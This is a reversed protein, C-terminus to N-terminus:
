SAKLGRRTSSQMLAYLYEVGPVPEEATLMQMYELLESPRLIPKIGGERVSKEELERIARAALAAAEFLAEPLEAKEYVARFGEPDKLLTQINKLPVRLLRSMSVEYLQLNGMSLAAFPSLKNSGDLHSLVKMLEDNESKFGLLRLSTLELTQALAKKMEKFESLNGYKQELSKQMTESIRTIVKDLVAVPMTDRQIMSEVIVESESHREVIKEFTQPNIQAQENKVLTSVVSEHRTEVLADALKETVDSRRAIAQLKEADSHPLLNLLDKESLLKSHELVPAAVESVDNIMTQLIDPPLKDIRSLRSALITRVEVGARALLQKFIDDAIETAKASFAEEGSASYQAGVKDAIEKQMAMSPDEMFRRIDEQTLRNSEVM